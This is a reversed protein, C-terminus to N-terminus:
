GKDVMLCYELLKEKENDVREDIVAELLLQLAQGIARGELGLEILDDGNVALNKLVFCEEHMVIDGAIEMCENLKALRDARIEPPNDISDAQKFQLLQLFFNEGHKMLFRKISKKSPEFRRMHEYILQYVNTRTDNDFKLREMIKDAVAAGVKDHGYSHGVGSDDLFFTSPKGIDHFLATWRVLPTPSTENLVALTHEWVDLAHYKSHHAQGVM